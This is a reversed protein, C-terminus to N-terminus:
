FWGVSAENNAKSRTVSVLYYRYIVKRKRKGEDIQYGKRLM